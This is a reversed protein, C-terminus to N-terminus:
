QGRGAAQEGDEEATGLRHQVEGVGPVLGGDGVRGEEVGHEVAADVERRGGELGPEDRGRVVLLRQGTDRVGDGGRGTGGRLGQARASGVGPYAALSLRYASRAM